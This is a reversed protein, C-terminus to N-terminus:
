HVPEESTGDADSHSREGTDADPGEAVLRDLVDTFVDACHARSYREFLSPDPDYDFEGRHLRALADRIGDTDDPHVVIGVDNSRIWDAVAFDPDVLALIPNRAALYDWIKSPISLRNDPDTGGVYLLVDAGVLAPIVDEHPVFGHTEVCGAVGADAAANQYAPKWGGYFHVGLDAEDVAASSVYRGLGALFGYPEIWGDYFSGAYTVTFRDYSEPRVDEFKTEDYGTPPLKVFRAPPVDPYAAEFYDDALQIHDLWCVRDAHEVTLREVRAAIPQLRSDADWDPHTALPDRFEALWPTGTLRRVAYGILHMHFPNNMTVVADPDVARARRLARALAIPFTPIYPEPVYSLEVDWGREGFLRIRSAIKEARGAGESPRRNTVLLATQM